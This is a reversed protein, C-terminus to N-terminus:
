FREPISIGTRMCTVLGEIEWNYKYRKEYLHLQGINMFLLYIFLSYVFSSIPQCGVMNITEHVAEVLRKWIRTRWRHAEWRRTFGSVVVVIYLMVFNGICLRRYSRHRKRRTITQCFGLSICVGMQQVSDTRLTWGFEAIFSHVIYLLTFIIFEHHCHLYSLNMVSVTLVHYIWVFDTMIQLNWLWWCLLYSLNMVAIWQLLTLIISEHRCHLYSSNIVTCFARYIWVSGMM